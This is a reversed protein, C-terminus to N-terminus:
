AKMSYARKMGMVSVKPFEIEEFDYIREHSINRLTAVPWPLRVRSRTCSSPLFARGM